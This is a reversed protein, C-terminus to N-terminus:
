GHGASCTVVAVDSLASSPILRAAHGKFAPKGSCAQSAPLVNCLRDLAVPFMGNRVLAALYLGSSCTDLECIKKEGNTPTEERMADSGDGISSPLTVYRVNWAELSSTDGDFQEKATCRALGQEAPLGMGRADRVMMLKAAACRHRLLRDKEDSLRTLSDMSRRGKAQGVKRGSPPCSARPGAAHHCKGTSDMQMQELEIASAVSLLSFASFDNFCRARDKPETAQAKAASKSTVICQQMPADLVEASFPTALRLLARLGSRSYEDSRVWRRLHDAYEIELSSEPLLCGPESTWTSALRPGNGLVDCPLIARTASIPEQWARAYDLPSAATGRATGAVAAHTIM